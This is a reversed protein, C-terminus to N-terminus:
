KPAPDGTNNREHVLRVINPLRVSYKWPTLESLPLRYLSPSRTMRLLNLSAETVPNKGTDLVVLSRATPLAHPEWSDAPLRERTHDDDKILDM